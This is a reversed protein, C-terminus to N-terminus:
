AESGLGDIAKRGIEIARDVVMQRWDDFDCYFTDRMRRKITRALGTRPDGRFRLWNDARLAGLVDPVPVTGYEVSVSAMKAQPASGAFASSMTGQIPASTSSGADPDTAENGYWRRARDKEEQTGTVIPEGYGYPGLGTHFDFLAVHSATGAHEAIIERFTTNSWTPQDGGFFLGDAHAYQGGSVACQFAWMGKEAIYRAIAEEAAWRAKGDWDSPLMFPHVDEYAANVPLPRSFDIFNRNLDVNDETTRSIHAFGYPNIAHVMVVATDKPLADLLGSRIMAVQGGSGCFGEGGHTASTVFLVRRASAPGVRAVDTSLRVGGPGEANPNVRVDVKVGLGAVAARFRDRADAYTEGFCANVAARDM